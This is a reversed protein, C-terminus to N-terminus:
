VDFCCRFAIELGVEETTLILRGANPEDDEDDDVTFDAVVSPLGNCVLVTVFPIIEDDADDDDDAVGTLFAFGEEEGDDVGIFVGLFDGEVEEEEEEEEDDDADM